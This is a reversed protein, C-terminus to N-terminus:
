PVPHVAIDDVYTTCAHEAVSVFGVWDLRRFGAECPLGAFRKVTGDPLAVQMTFTGDAKEGLATSVEIRVWTNTPITLLERDECVLKGGQNVRVGPGRVFAGGTYQRWQYYFESEASVRLAFSGVLHGEEFSRRYYVHPNFAYKQGPGDVFKLSHTGSAAQEDTVRATFAGEENTATDPLAGGIAIGECDEHIPQPPPVFRAYAGTLDVKGPAFARARVVYSDPVAFPGTYLTSTATPESGDTTYRLEAQPDDALLAIRAEPALKGYGPEIRSRLRLGYWRARYAPELGCESVAVPQPIGLALAPSGPRFRYDDHDADVFQPDAASSHLEVGQPQFRALVQEGWTPDAADFYLNRDSAVDKLLSGTKSQGGPPTEGIATQGPRRAYYVNGQHVAGTQDYRVLVLYGRQRSTPRLDAVINNVITNAGKNIFGEGFGGSRAILNGDFISGHQDDDNRIVANMYEGFNDHCWNRRITNGTGCGSVYVANGDGTVEMVNHLENDEVVNHRAHLFPERGTWDPRKFGTGLKAELEPFRCTRSCEGRGNADWSIRGSVVVAAYPTHHVHNHAVLNHGSQWLFVAPSAQYMWGTHHLYNNRIQNDRNVDKTGPGYGALLIGVGGVDHIHNGEIRNHQAHLDLRIGAHASSTFECDLIACDEAGRLRVLASPRDFMEWDHQLGWGTGGHWSMRDGHQFKLGQFVIGRVPRDAAGAYDIQGEVRLFETLLPAEIGPEPRDGRPWYYLRKEAAHLVWEGPQDLAALTNEVFCSPRDEMSNRGLPYTAPQAVTLATPEVSAIPLLNQIWFHSPIVRLEADALDALAPLTGASLPMRTLSGADGGAPRFGETRARPLHEDGLYLSYFRSCDRSDTPEGGGPNPDQRATRRDLIASVDAVWVKGRAVVPLGVPADALRQWGTVPVGSTLVPEEGPYAAYSVTHGEAAGDALGFVVTEGLRYEGGRLWVLVDRQPQGLARVADRARALTAFPQALTGPDADSGAPSVVFDAVPAALCSLALLSALAASRCM